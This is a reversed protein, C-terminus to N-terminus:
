HTLMLPCCCSLSSLLDCNFAICFELLRCVANNMCEMLARRENACRTNDYNNSRLCTMMIMMDPVCAAKKQAKRVRPIIYKGLKM